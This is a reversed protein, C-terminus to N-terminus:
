NFMCKCSFKEIRFMWKTFCVHSIEVKWINICLFTHVKRYFMKFCIFNHSFCSHFNKTNIACRHSIRRLFFNKLKIRIKDCVCMRVSTFKCLELFKRRKIVYLIWSLFLVYNSIYRRPLHHYHETVSFSFNFLFLRHCLFFHTKFTFENTVIFYITQANTTSTCSCKRVFLLFSIFHLWQKCQKSM